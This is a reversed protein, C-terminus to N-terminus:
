DDCEKALGVRVARERKEHPCNYACGSDFDDCGEDCSPVELDPCFSRGWVFLSVMSDFDLEKIQEFNTM